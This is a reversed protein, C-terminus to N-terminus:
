AQKTMVSRQPCGTEGKAYDEVEKKILSVGRLIYQSLIDEVSFVSGLTSSVLTSSVLGVSVVSTHIARIGRGANEVLNDQGACFGNSCGIHSTSDLAQLKAM